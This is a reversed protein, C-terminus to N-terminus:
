SEEATSLLESDKIELKLLVGFERTEDMIGGKGVTVAVALAVVWSLVEALLATKAVAVFVVAASLFLDVGVIIELAEVCEFEALSNNGM